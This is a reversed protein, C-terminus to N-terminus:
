EFITFPLNTSSRRDVPIDSHRHKQSRGVSTLLVFAAVLSAALWKRRAMLGPIPMATHLLGDPRPRIM